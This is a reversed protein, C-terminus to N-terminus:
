DILPRQLGSICMWVGSDDLNSEYAEEVTQTLNETDTFYGVLTATINAGELDKFYLRLQGGSFLYLEGTHVDAITVEEDRSYNGRVSQSM